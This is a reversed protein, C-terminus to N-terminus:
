ITADDNEGTVRCVEAGLCDWGGFYDCAFLEIKQVDGALTVIRDPTNTPLGGNVQM